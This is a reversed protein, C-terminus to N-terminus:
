QITAETDDLVGDEVDLLLWVVLRSVLLPRLNLEHAKLLLLLLLLLILKRVIVSDEKELVLLHGLLPLKSRCGALRTSFLLMGM